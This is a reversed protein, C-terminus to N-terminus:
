LQWESCVRHLVAASQLLHGQTQQHLGVWLGKPREQLENDWRLSEQLPMISRGGRKKEEHSMGKSVLVLYAECDVGLVQTSLGVQQTM